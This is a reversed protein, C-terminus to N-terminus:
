SRRRRVGSFLNKIGSILGKILNFVMPALWLIVPLLLIIVLIVTIKGIPFAAGFLEWEAHWWKSLWSERDIETGTEDVEVFGSYEYLPYFSM